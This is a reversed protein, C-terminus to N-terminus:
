RSDWRAKSHRNPRGGAPSTRRLGGELTLVHTAHRGYLFERPASCRPCPSHPVLSPLARPPVRPGVGDNKGLEVRTGPAELAETPIRVPPDGILRVAIPAALAGNLLHTALFGPQLPTGPVSEPIPPPPLAATSPNWRGRIKSPALSPGNGSRTTSTRSAADTSTAEAGPPSREPHPSPLPIRQRSGFTAARPAARRPPPDFAGTVHTRSQIRPAERVELREVRRPPHGFGVRQGLATSQLCIEHVALGTRHGATSSRCSVPRCRMAFARGHPERTRFVHRDRSAYTAPRWANRASLPSSGGVVWAVAVSRPPALSEATARGM